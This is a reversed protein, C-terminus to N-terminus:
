AFRFCMSQHVQFHDNKAGLDGSFLDPAGGRPVLLIEGRERCTHHSVKPQHEKMIGKIPTFSVASM